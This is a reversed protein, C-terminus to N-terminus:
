VEPVQILLKAALIVWEKAVVEGWLKRGNNTQICFNIHAEADM